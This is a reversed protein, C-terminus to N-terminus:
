EAFAQLLSSPPTKKPPKHSRPPCQTEPMHCSWKATVIVRSTGCSASYTSWPRFCTPEVGRRKRSRAPRTHLSGATAQAQQRHHFPRVRLCKKLIYAGAARWTSRVRTSLSYVMALHIITSQLTKLPLMYAAKAQLFPWVCCLAFIVSSRTANKRAFLKLKRLRRYTAALKDNDRSPASRFMASDSNELDRMGIPAHLSGVLLCNVVTRVCGKQNHAAEADFPDLGQWHSLRGVVTLLNALTSEWTFLVSRLLLTMAFYFFFLFAAYNHHLMLVNRNLLFCLPM